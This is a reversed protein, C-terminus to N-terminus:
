IHVPSTKTHLELGLGPRRTSVAEEIETGTTEGTM